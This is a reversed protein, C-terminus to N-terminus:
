VFNVGNRSYENIEIPTYTNRPQRSSMEVFSLDSSENTTLSKFHKERPQNSHVPSRAITPKFYTHVELSSPYLWLSILCMTILRAFTEIFRLVRDKEWIPYLHEIILLVPISLCWIVTSTGFAYFFPRQQPFSFFKITRHLNYMYVLMVFSQLTTAVSGWRGQFPSEVANPDHEVISLIECVIQACVSIHVLLILWASSEDDSRTLTWGNAVLICLTIMIGRGVAEVVDSFLLLGIPDESIGDISKARYIAESAGGMFFIIWCIVALIYLPHKVTSSLSEDRDDRMIRSNDKCSSKLADLVLSFGPAGFSILAVASVVCSIFAIFILHRRDMSEEKQFGLNPNTAHLKYFLDRTPIANCSM